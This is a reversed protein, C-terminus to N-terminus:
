QVGWSKLLNYINREDTQSLTREKRLIQLMESYDSGNESLEVIRAYLDRGFIGLLHKPIM